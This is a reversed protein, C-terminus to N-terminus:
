YGLVNSDLVGSTASDLLFFNFSSAPSLRWSTDWHLLDAGIRHEIAEIYCDRQIAAGGGPPRRIVTIREGLERGLLQPWLNTNAQGDMTLAQFRLQPQSYILQLWHAADNAESDSNILLGAKAKQRISYQAKSATDIATQTTGGTRTVSITNYILQDDYSITIASYPLEAGGGDGFTGRSSTEILYRWHRGQWTARGQNDMFFVGNESDAITQLAQLASSGAVTVAQMLSQTGTINITRLSAPWSMATLVATVADNSYNSAFTGTLPYLNFLKFADVAHLSVFADSLTSYAVPWAEVYGLFLRYTISSSIASIRIPRAPIVYPYYPSSVYTPDFRRDRNDLLVTAEGAEVQDLELQRGRRITIPMTETRVYASIDTWTYTADFPNSAFAVEVVIQPRTM